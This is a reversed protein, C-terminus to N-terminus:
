AEKLAGWLQDEMPMAVVTLITPEMDPTVLWLPVQMRAIVRMMLAMDETTLGTVDRNELDTIIRDLQEDMM